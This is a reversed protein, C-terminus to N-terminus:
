GSIRCSKLMGSFLERGVATAQDVCRGYLRRFNTYNYLSGYEVPLPTHHVVVPVDLKNLVKFYPRFEEEDLYLKGYHSALQVGCFGLEKVCREVEYVCDRAGWPTGRGPGYIPGPTTERTQVDRRQGDQVYRPTAMGALM